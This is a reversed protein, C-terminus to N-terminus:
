LRIKTCPARREHPLPLASCRRRSERTAADSEGHPHPPVVCGGSCGAAGANRRECLDSAPAVLGFCQRSQLSRNGARASAARRRRGCVCQALAVAQAACTRGNGHEGHFGAAPTGNLVLCAGSLLSELRQQQALRKRAHSKDKLVVRTLPRARSGSIGLPRPCARKGNYRCKDHIRAPLTYM